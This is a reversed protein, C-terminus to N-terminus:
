LEANLRTKKSFFNFPRSLENCPHNTDDISPSLLDFNDEAISLFCIYM